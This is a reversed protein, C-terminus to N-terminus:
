AVTKNTAVKGGMDQINEVSARFAQEFIQELATNPGAEVVEGFARLASQPTHAALDQQLSRNAIM